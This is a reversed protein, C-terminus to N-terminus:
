KESAEKLEALLVQRAETRSKQLVGCLVDILRQLERARSEHADSEKSQKLVWEHRQGVRRELNAVETQAASLQSKLLELEPDIAEPDCVAGLRAICRDLKKLEEQKKLLEVQAAQIKIKTEIVDARCRSASQKEDQIQRGYTVILQEIARVPENVDRGYWGSNLVENLFKLRNNLTLGNMASVLSHEHEFEAYAMLLPRNPQQRLLEAAFDYGPKKDNRWDTFLKYIIKGLQCDRGTVWGEEDQYVVEGSQIMREAEESLGSYETNPDGKGLRERVLAEFQEPLNKVELRNPAVALIGLLLHATGTQGHGAKRAESVSYELVAQVDAGLEMAKDSHGTM